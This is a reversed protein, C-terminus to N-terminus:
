QDVKTAPLLPIRILANGRKVVIIVEEGAFVKKMVEDYERITGIRTGGM